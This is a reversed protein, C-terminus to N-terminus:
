SLFERLARGRTAHRLKRLAKAEIQRIRERTVRFHQGIEELTHDRGDVLGYRLELIERERDTLLALKDRVTSRLMGLQVDDEQAPTSEDEVFDALVSSDETGVPTELSIPEQATRLLSRVRAAARRLQRELEPDLRAGSAGAQRIAAAAEPPLLDLGLAIENFTPERGLEQQLRRQVRRMQNISDSLHVPIRITRAQDAIARTIAQRIWWSAYTSFKFGKVPDFKDVGRLLGINGEQILDLLTLGRGLHHKAVSVVLRLNSRALRVRASAAAGPVRVFASALEADAPLWSQFTRRAPFADCERRKGSRRTVYELWRAQVAAPLLYLGVLIAFGAEAVGEWRADHGWRGDDLWRRLYSIGRGDAAASVQRAEGLLGAFDPPPAALARARVQLRTWDESLGDWLRLCAESTTLPLGAPGKEVMVRALTSEALMRTALWTEQGPELLPETGIETLYQRISDTDAEASGALEELPEDALDDDADAPEDSGPALEDDAAGDDEVLLDVEDDPASLDLADDDPDPPLEASEDSTSVFLTAELYTDPTM